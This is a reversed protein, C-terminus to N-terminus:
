FGAFSADARGHRNQSTVAPEAATPITRANVATVTAIKKKRLECGFTVGRPVNGFAIVFVGGVAGAGTSVSDGSLALLSTAVVLAAAAGAAVGVASGIAVTLGGATAEEAGAEEAGAEDAGAEDAGADDSGAPITLSGAGGTTVDDALLSGSAFNSRSISLLATSGSTLDDGAGVAKSVGPAGASKVGFRGTAGRGCGRSM